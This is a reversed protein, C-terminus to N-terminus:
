GNCMLGRTCRADPMGQARQKPLAFLKECAEPAVRRSFAFSYKGDNRALPDRSHAGSSLSRSAIWLAAFLFFPNSRQARLAYLKAIERRMAGSTQKFSKAGEM